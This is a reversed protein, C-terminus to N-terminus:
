IECNYLVVVIIILCKGGNVIQLNFEVDVATEKDKSACVEVHRGEVIVSQSSIRVTVETHHFIAYYM